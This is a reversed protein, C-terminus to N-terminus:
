KSEINIYQPSPKSTDPNAVIYEKQKDQGDEASVDHEKSATNNKDNVFVFQGNMMDPAYRSIPALDSFYQTSVPNVEPATEADEVEIRFLQNGVVPHKDSFCERFMLHRTRTYTVCRNKYKIRFFDPYKESVSLVFTQRPDKSNVNKKLVPLKFSRFTLAQTSSLVNKLLPNPEITLIISYISQELSVTELNVKMRYKKNRNMTVAPSHFFPSNYKPMSVYTHAGANYLYGEKPMNESVNESIPQKVSEWEEGENENGKLNVVIGRGSIQYAHLLCILYKWHIKIM